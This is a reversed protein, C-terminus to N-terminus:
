PTIVYDAFAGICKEDHMGNIIFNGTIAIRITEGVNAFPNIPVTRFNHADVYIEDAGANSFVYKPDTEVISWKSNDFRWMQVSEPYSFIFEYGSPNEIFVAINRTDLQIKPFKISLSTNMECNVYIDNFSKEKSSDTNTCSLLFIILLLLIKKM